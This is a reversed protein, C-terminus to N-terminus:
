PATGDRGGEDVVQEVILGRELRYWVTIEGDQWLGGGPGRTVVRLHARLRDDPERALEIAKIELRVSGLLQTFHARVGDLGDIVGGELNDTFRAAPAYCSVIADLDRANIAAYLKAIRDEDPTM